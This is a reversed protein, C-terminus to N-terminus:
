VPFHRTFGSRMRFALGLLLIGFIVAYSAVLWVWVLLGALPTTAMFIGLVISAVGTLLLFIEGSLVSRLRVAAAIELVGTVIAWAAILYLWVMATIGPWLLTFVGAAIGLIGETALMPWVNEHRLRLAQTFAFIGDVLLYAGWLLVLAFLTIGPWAFAGIGFLISVVGRLAIIEWSSGRHGIM